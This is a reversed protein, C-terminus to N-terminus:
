LQSVLILQRDQTEHLSCQISDGISVGLESYPQTLLDGYLFNDKLKCIRIWAQEPEHHQKFLTVVVDDPFDPHRLPDLLGIARSKEKDKNMVQYQSRIYHEFSAFGTRDVDQHKLDCYEFMGLGSRRLVIMTNSELKRTLLGMPTETAISIPQFSLGWKEDIYGYVILGTDGAVVWNSLTDNLLKPCRIYIFKHYFERFNADKIPKLFEEIHRNVDILQGAENLGLPKACRKLWEESSLEPIEEKLLAQKFKERLDLVIDAELSSEENQFFRWRYDDLLHLLVIQTKGNVEYIDLIKFYANAGSTHLGWGMEREFKTLPRMRNSLITFRHTTHMGAICNSADIFGPERIVMGVKYQQFYQPSLNVDRVYMTLQTFVEHVLKEYKNHNM